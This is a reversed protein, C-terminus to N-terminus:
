SLSMIFRGMEAATNCDETSEYPDTILFSLLSKTSVLIDTYDSTDYMVYGILQRGHKKNFGEVLYRMLESWVVGDETGCDSSTPFLGILTFMSEGRSRMPPLHTVHDQQCATIPRSLLIFSFLVISSTIISVLRFSPRIKRDGNMQTHM